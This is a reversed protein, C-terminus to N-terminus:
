NLGQRRLAQWEPGTIPLFTFAQDFLKYIKNYDKRAYATEIAELAARITANPIYAITDRVRDPYGVENIGDIIRVLVIDEGYIFTTGLEGSDERIIDDGWMLLRENVFDRQADAFGRSLEESDPYYVKNLFVITHTQKVIELASLHEGARSEMGALAAAHSAPAAKGQRLSIMANPDLRGNDNKDCAVLAAAAALLILMKKM